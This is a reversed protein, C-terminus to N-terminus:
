KWPIKCAGRATCDWYALGLLAVAGIVVGIKLGTPLESPPITGGLEGSAMKRVVTPEMSPPVSEVVHMQLM